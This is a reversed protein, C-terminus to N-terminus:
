ATVKGAAAGQAASAPVTARTLESVSNLQGCRETLDLLTKAGASGLVRGACDLFKEARDAPTMPWAASGPVRDERKKFTGRTTEIEIENFGTVGSYTKDSPIRFREVKPILARIEPRMVMADTFTEMTLKGDLLVAATNYEM